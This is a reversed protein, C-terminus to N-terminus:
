GAHRAGRGDAGEDGRRAQPALAGGPDREDRRPSPPDQTPEVAGVRRARRRPRRRPSPSPFSRVHAEILWADYAAAFAKLARPLKDLADDVRGDALLRACHTGGHAALVLFDFDDGPSAVYVFRAAWTVRASRRRAAPRSGRASARGDDRSSFAVYAEPPSRTPTASSRATTSSRSAPYSEAARVITATTAKMTSESGRSTLTPGRGRCRSRRDAAAACLFGYRDQQPWPGSSTSPERRIRLERPTEM